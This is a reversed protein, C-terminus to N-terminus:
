SRAASTQLIDSWLISSVNAIILKIRHEIKQLKDTDEPIMPVCNLLKYLDVVNFIKIGCKSCLGYKESTQPIQFKDYTIIGHTLTDKSVCGDCIPTVKTTTNSRTASVNVINVVELRNASAQLIWKVWMNFRSKEASKLIRTIVGAYISQYYPLSPWMQRPFQFLEKVHEVSTQKYDNPLSEWMYTPIKKINILDDFCIFPSNIMSVNHVISNQLEDTNYKMYILIEMDNDPNINEDPSYAKDQTDIPMSVSYRRRIKKSLPSTLCYMSPSTDRYNGCSEELMNMVRDNYNGINVSDQSIALQSNDVDNTSNNTNSDGLYMVNADNPDDTKTQALLMYEEMQFCSEANRLNVPLQIFTATVNNSQQVDTPEEQDHPKNEGHQKKKEELSKFHDIWSMTRIESRHLCFLLYYKVKCDLSFDLFIFGGCILTKYMGIVCFMRM